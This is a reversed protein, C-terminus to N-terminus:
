QAGVDRHGWTEAGGRGETDMDRRRWVEAHSWFLDKCQPKTLPKTLATNTMMRESRWQTVPLFHLLPLPWFRIKCDDVLSYEVIVVCFDAQTFIYIWQGKSHNREKHNLAQCSLFYVSLLYFQGKKPQLELPIICQTLAQPVMM